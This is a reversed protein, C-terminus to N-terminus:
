SLCCRPSRDLGALAWSGAILSPEATREANVNQSVESTLRKEGALEVGDIRARKSIHVNLEPSAVYPANPM